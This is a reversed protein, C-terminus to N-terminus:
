MFEVGGDPSINNSILDLKVLNPFNGNELLKTIAISGQNGMISSTVKCETLNPANVNKLTEDLVEAGEADIYCDHLILSTINPNEQLFNILKEMHIHLSNLDLTNGNVYKNLEVEMM